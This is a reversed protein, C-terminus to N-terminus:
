CLAKYIVFAGYDANAPYEIPGNDYKVQGWTRNSKTPDVTPDRQKDYRNMVYPSGEGNAAQASTFGLNIAQNKYGQSAGNYFFFARKVNSDLTLDINGVKGLVFKAADDTATQFQTDSYSGKPYSSGWIQYPGMGNSPGAKQLSYERYHLAALLQWPVNYSDQAKQYFSLNAELREIEASSLISNGAYDKNNITIIGSSGGGGSPYSNYGFLYRWTLANVTGTVGIGMKQQFTETASKSNTWFDGDVTLYEFKSLLYQAARAAYNNTRSSIIVIMTSLTDQGALGDPSLGHNRQFTTVAAATGNGFIGDVSINFGHYYLLCQLATVNVGSSGNGLVPWNPINAM